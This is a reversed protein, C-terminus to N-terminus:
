GVAAVMVVFEEIRESGSGGGSALLRLSYTGGEHHNSQVAKDEYVALWGAM